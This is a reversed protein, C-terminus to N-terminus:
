VERNALRGQNGKIVATLSIATYRTGAALDRTVCHKRASPSEGPLEGAVSVMAGVTVGWM